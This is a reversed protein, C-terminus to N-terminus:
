QSARKKEQQDKKLYLDHLIKGQIGHLWWYLILGIALMVGAVIYLIIGVIEFGGKISGINVSLILVIGIGMLWELFHNFNANKIKTSELVNEKNYYKKVSKTYDKYWWKKKDKEKM